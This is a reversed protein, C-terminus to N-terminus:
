AYILRVGDSVARPKATARLLRRLGSTCVRGSTREDPAPMKCGLRQIGVYKASRESLRTIVEANVDVM